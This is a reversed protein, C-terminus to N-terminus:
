QFPMGVDDHAPGASTLMMHCAHCAQTSTLHPPGPPHAMGGADPPSDDMAEALALLEEEM